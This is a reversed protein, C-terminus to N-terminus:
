KTQSVRTTDNIIEKLHAAAASIDDQSIVARVVAIRTAGSELVIKINSEDIGGIAVFPIKFIKNVADKILGLGVEKYDPKTPTSFVPGISIYDAGEEQAAIAQSINHTSKGIIKDPGLIKRACSVSIDDQGIHIGDADCELAVDTRDNVIFLVGKDKTLARIDKGASVLDKVSAEKDRLQVADAGGAIARQAIFLHDRGKQSKRDLVVYLISDKLLANKLGMVYLDQKKFSM